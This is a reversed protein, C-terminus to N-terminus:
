LNDIPSRVENSRDTVHVYIMTTAVDQHGLLRQVTHIDVGDEILHTAFSHRLTHPRVPKTIGAGHAGIAVARQITSRHIHYRHRVGTIRDKYHSAAPFVWQWIWDRDADPRNRAVTAPLPARGLGNALDSHHLTRVYALQEQLPAVLTQPLVTHRDKAGKGDRVTIRKSDFDVDKVRLSVAEDLRLGAGYLVQCVLRPTGQLHGVLSAVEKRTLVVPIRRPKKAREIKKVPGLDRDLVRRYLFILACLAQNQTSASVHEKVALHNLFDRVEPIGMELPHRLRHHFVFRRVWHVYAAETRPSYHLTRVAIRVRDLLRPKPADGTPPKPVRFDPM